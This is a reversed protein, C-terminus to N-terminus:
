PCFKVSSVQPFIAILEVVAIRIRESCPVFEETKKTMDQMAYWLEQIRKTINDTRKKIEEFQPMSQSGGTASASNGSSSSSSNSAMSYLSQTVPPRSEERAMQRTEYM